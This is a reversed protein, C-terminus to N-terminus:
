HRVLDRVVHMAARYPGPGHSVRAVGLKALEAISPTHANAMINVPLPSQRVFAAILDAAVLGPVFVGSAGAEAYARARALAADIMGADHASAPAQFFVDIRANIFFPMAGADAAHRAARLRQVSDEISRLSGNEPFSDELNCGIAGAALVRAVSRGVGDPTAGYGSELDLSVPLETVRLIRELNAIVLDFPLQEGDDYGHAAAVSWSGTALARAGADAAAKASGADWINHLVLPQGPIHLARFANARDVRTSKNM